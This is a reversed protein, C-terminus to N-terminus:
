GNRPSRSLGIIALAAMANLLTETMALLRRRRPAILYSQRGFFELTSQGYHRSSDGFARAGLITKSLPAALRITIRAIMMAGAM